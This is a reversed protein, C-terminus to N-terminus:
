IIEEGLLFMDRNHITIYIISNILYANRIGLELKNCDYLLLNTVNNTNNENNTNNSNYKLETFQIRDENIMFFIIM